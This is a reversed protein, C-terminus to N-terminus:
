STSILIIAQMSSSLSPGGQRCRRIGEVVQRREAQRVLVHSRSRSPRRPLPYRPARVSFLMPLCSILGFCHYSRASRRQRVKYRQLEPKDFLADQQEKLSKLSSTIGQPRLLSASRDASLCPFVLKPCQPSVTKSTTWSPWCKRSSSAACAFFSPSNPLPSGKLLPWGDPM